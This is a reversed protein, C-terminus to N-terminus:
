IWCSYLKEKIMEMVIDM